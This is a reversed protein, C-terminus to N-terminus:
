LSRRKFPNGRASRMNTMKEGCIYKKTEAEVKKAPEVGIESKVGILEAAKGTVESPVVLM